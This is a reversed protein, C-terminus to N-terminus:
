FVLPEVVLVLCLAQYVQLDLPCYGALVSSTSFVPTAEGGRDIKILNFIVDMKRVGVMLVSFYPM